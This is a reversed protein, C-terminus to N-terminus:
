EQEAEDRGERPGAREALVHKRPLPAHPRPCEEGAEVNGSDDIRAPDRRVDPRPDRSRRAPAQPRIFPSTYRSLAAVEHGFGAPTSAAISCNKACAPPLVPRAPCWREIPEERATLSSHKACAPPM